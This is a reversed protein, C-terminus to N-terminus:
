YILFMVNWFWLPIIIAKSYYWEVNLLGTESVYLINLICCAALQGMALELMWSDWLAEIWARGRYSSWGMCTPLLSSCWRRSTMRFGVRFGVSLLGDEIRLAGLQGLSELQSKLSLLLCRASGPDSVPFLVATMLSWSKASGEGAAPGVPVSLFYVLFNSKEPPEGVSSEWFGWQESLAQVKAPMNEWPMDERDLM